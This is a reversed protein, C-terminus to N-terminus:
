ELEEEHGEKGNSEEGSESGEGEGEGELTGEEGEKSEKTNTPNDMNNEENEKNASRLKEKYAKSDQRETDKKIEKSCKKWFDKAKQVSNLKFWKQKFFVSLGELKEWRYKISHKNLLVTLFKYSERRRLIRKPVDKYIKLEEEEVILSKKYSMELILDRMRKRLFYIVIDRPWDKEKAIASNLRFMKNIEWHLDQVQMETYEALIPILREYLNEGKEEKLGRIKLCNERLKYDEIAKEDLRREAEQKDKDKMKIVEEVINDTKEELNSLRQKANNMDKTLDELSERIESLESRFDQKIDARLTKIEKKMNQELDAQMKMQMKRMEELLLTQDFSQRRQTQKQIQTTATFTRSAAM